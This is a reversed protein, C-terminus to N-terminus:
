EGISRDVVPFRDCGNPRSDSNIRAFVRGCTGDHSYSRRHEVFAEYSLPRGLVRRHEPPPRCVRDGQSVPSSAPPRRPRRRASSSPRLWCGRTTAAVCSFRSWRSPVGFPPSGIRAWLRSVARDVPTPCRRSILRRWVKGSRERTELTNRLEDRTFDDMEPPAGVLKTETRFDNIRASLHSM